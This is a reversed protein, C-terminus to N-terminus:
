ACFCNSHMELVYLIAPPEEFNGAPYGEDNLEIQYDRGDQIGVDFDDHSFEVGMDSTVIASPQESAMDISDAHIVYGSFAWTAEVIKLLRKQIERECYQGFEFELDPGSPKGDPTDGYYWTNSDFGCHLDEGQMIGLAWPYFYDMIWVDGEDIESADLKLPPICDDPWALSDAYDEYADYLDYDETLLEILRWAAPSLLKIVRTLETEQGGDDTVTLTVTYDGAASYSHTVVEGSATEGDGFDWEWSTIEGDPDYSASADFTIEEGAMPKESDFTYSAVPPQNPTGRGTACYIEGENSNWYLITPAGSSDVGVSCYAYEGVDTDVSTKEWSVGNYHAYFLQVVESTEMLYSVM